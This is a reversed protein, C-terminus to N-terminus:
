QFDKMISNAAQNGINIASNLTRDEPYFQTSDTIYLGQIPSKILPIQDVFNTTCIAQAFPDRFVFRDKIWNEDFSSNIIKLAIIYENYIDDESLKYRSNKTDTYYPIYLLNLNKKQYQINLNTQEIYGNFPIQADNTNTWFVNSFPKSLNFLVCVVGIYNIEEIKKFYNDTQKPLIRILNPLAITSLIAHCPLAKQDLIISEVCNNKILIKDVTKGYIFNVNLKNLESTLTEILTYSGQEFYGFMEKDFLRKRSKAVRWIRHWIWAASIKEYEDGFKIKLLPHWIVYYAKEGINKILWEKGQYRDLKKWDNRFRSFIIHFGFRLRQLIPIANFNILDMPTGFSYMKGEHFFSTKTPQWYLKSSLGLENALNILHQDTQCIFHYFREVYEGRISISSALGGPTSSKDIITVSYGSKALRYAASLGSLGGGIIVIKKESKKNM